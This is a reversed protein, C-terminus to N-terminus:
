NWAPDPPQEDLGETARGLSRVVRRWLAEPRDSFIREATGPAPLWTGLALEGELQGASWGSYGLFLRVSREFEEPAEEAFQGLSELEAGIWVGEAVEVGGTLREPVRHLIQLTDLSVPGGIWIPIPLRGLVLDDSLVDRTTHTSRRNVVLGYAGQDTHEGILVVAHMFNPDLLEPGAALLTGQAVRLDM